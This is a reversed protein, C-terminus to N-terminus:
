VAPGSERHDPRRLCKVVAPTVRKVAPAFSSKIEGPSSPVRMDQAPAASVLASWVALCGLLRLMKTM